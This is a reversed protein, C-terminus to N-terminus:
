DDLWTRVVDTLAQRHEHSLWFHGAGQVQHSEIRIEAAWTLLRSSSTFVDDSGFVALTSHRSEQDDARGLYYARRNFPAIMTTAPPLLPSFLLYSTDISSKRLLDDIENPDSNSLRNGAFLARAQKLMHERVESHEQNAFAAGPPVQSAVMSGYSYGAFVLKISSYQLKSMLGSYYVLFISFATYDAIEPKLTWSPRRFNFTGVVDYGVDLLIHVALLVTSDDYSGGLPGYPHAVVAVRFRSKDSSTNRKSYVRAGIFSGDCATQLRLPQVEIDSPLTSESQM